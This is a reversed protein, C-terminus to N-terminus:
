NGSNLHYYKRLVQKRDSNEVKTQNEFTGGHEVSWGSWERFAHYTWDWGFEEFISICDEIYQAAGPAWAIASFEGVFIPVNYKLQFERAPLLSSRIAEKNWEKGNIMGPYRIGTKRSKGIGQHTFEHPSYFHISYIVNDVNVPMFTKLGAVSGWQAPEIIIPTTKDIARIAHATRAALRNWDLGGDPTYRYGDERPENLLDYGYIMPNGNFHRALKEWGSVLLAQSEQDWSLQNSLLANQTMGPGTHLDIVIKVGYKELAPMIADIAAIKRDLWANFKEPGAIDESRERLLQWRLLNGGFKESFDRIDDATLRPGAMAGRYKPIAQLRGPPPTFRDLGEAPLLIIKVNRMELAGKTNQLGISLTLGTADPPIKAYTHFKRWGFTGFQKEQEAHSGGTPTAIGLMLKPGLYAPSPVAINEGRMEAELQVARGRAKVPDVPINLWTDRVTDSEFRIAGRGDEGPAFRIGRRVYPEVERPTTFSNSYLLEEAIGSLALGGLLSLILSIKM